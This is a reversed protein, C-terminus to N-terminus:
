KRKREMDVIIEEANESVDPLSELYTTIEEATIKGTQIMQEIIRRDMTKDDLIIKKEVM